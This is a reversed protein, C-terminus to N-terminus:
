AVGRRSNFTIVAQTPTVVPRSEKQIKAQLARTLEKLDQDVMVIMVGRKLASLQDFSGDPANLQESWKILDPSALAGVRLALAKRYKIFLEACCNKYTYAAGMQATDVEKGLAEGQMTQQAVRVHNQYSNANWSIQGMLDKGWELLQEDNLNPFPDEPFVGVPAPAIKAESKSAEADVRIMNGYYEAEAQGVVGLLYVTSAITAGCIGLIPLWKFHSEIAFAAILLRIGLILCGLSLVTIAAAFRHFELLSMALAFLVGFSLIEVTVVRSFEADSVRVNAMRQLCSQGKTKWRLLLLPLRVM